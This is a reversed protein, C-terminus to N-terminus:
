FFFYKTIAVVSPLPVVVPRATFLLHRVIKNIFHHKYNSTKEWGEGDTLSNCLIKRLGGAIGAEKLHALKTHIAM